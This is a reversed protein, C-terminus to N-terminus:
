RMAYAFWELETTLRQVASRGFRLHGTRKAWTAVERQRAALETRRLEWWEEWVVQAGERQHGLEEDSAPLRGEWLQVSQGAAHALRRSRKKDLALLEREVSDIRRPISAAVRAMAYTVLLREVEATSVAEPPISLDVEMQPDFYDDLFAM